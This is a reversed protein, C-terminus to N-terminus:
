NKIYNLKTKFKNKINKKFNIKKVTYIQSNILIM